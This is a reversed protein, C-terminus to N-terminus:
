QELEFHVRRNEQLCQASDETCFPKEKGYVVTRMRDSHIGLKELEERVKDARKAALKRNYEQSGREDCHAGVIIRLDPHAALFDADAKLAGVEGPRLDYRNYDFYIDKMTREFLEQESPGQQVAPAPAPAPPPAPAAAAAEVTVELTSRYTGGPGLATLTYVTSDRPVVSQRGRFGVEGLPYISVYNAYKTSWELEVAEGPHVRAPTATFRASPIPPPPPVDLPAIPLYKKECAGVLLVAAVALAPRVLRWLGRNM